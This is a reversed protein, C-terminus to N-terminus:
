SKLNPMLITLSRKKNRRLQELQLQTELGRKSRECMANDVGDIFQEVDHSFHAISQLYADKPSISSLSNVSVGKTKLYERIVDPVVLPVTEDQKQYNYLADSLDSSIMPPTPFESEVKGLKEGTETKPPLAMVSGKDGLNSPAAALIEQEKDGRTLNSKRRKLIEATAMVAAAGAGAIVAAQKLKINRGKLLHASAGVIRLTVEGRIGGTSNDLSKLGKQLNGKIEPSVVNPVSSCCSIM